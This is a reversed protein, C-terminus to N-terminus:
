QFDKKSRKVVMGDFDFAQNAPRGHDRKRGKTISRIEHILLDFCIL